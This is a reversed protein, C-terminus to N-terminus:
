PGPQAMLLKGLELVAQQVAECALTHCRVEHRPQQCSTRPRRISLSSPPIALIPADSHPLTGMILFRYDAGGAPEAAQMSTESTRNGGEPVLMIALGHNARRKSQLNTRM